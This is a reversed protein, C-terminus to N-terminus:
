HFCKVFATRGENAEIGIQEDVFLDVPPLAIWLVLVLYVTM